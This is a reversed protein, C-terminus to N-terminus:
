ASSQAVTGPVHTVHDITCGQHLIIYSGTHRGPDPYYQLNCDSFAMLQNETKISSKRLPDSLPADKMDAYYKLGLTKNDRIYILLNVLGKLHVKGPNSSINELKHVAFFFGSKYIVFLDIICYM